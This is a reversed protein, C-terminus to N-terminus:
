AARRSSSSRLNCTRALLRMELQQDGVVSQRFIQWIVIAKGSSNGDIM